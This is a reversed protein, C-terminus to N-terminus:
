KIQRFHLVLFCSCGEEFQAFLEDPFERLDTHIIEIRHTRLPIYDLHSPAYYDYGKLTPTYTVLKLYNTVKDGINNPDVLDSHM